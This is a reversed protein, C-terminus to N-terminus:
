SFVSLTIGLHTARRHKPDCCLVGYSHNNNGEQKEEIKIMEIREKVTKQEEYINSM